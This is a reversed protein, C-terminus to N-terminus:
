NIVNIRIYYGSKNQYTHDELPSFSTTSQSASARVWEFDATSDNTWLCYDQEFNCDYESQPNWIYTSITTTLRTTTSVTTLTANPLAYDPYLSCVSAQTFTIDDLAIDGRGAGKIGEFIIRHKDNTRYSFYAERWMSGQSYSLSWIFNSSNTNIDYLYVNLTGLNNALNSYMFYWFRVCVDLQVYDLPQSEMRGIWGTQTPTDTVKNYSLYFCLKDYQFLNNVLVLMHDLLHESLIIM